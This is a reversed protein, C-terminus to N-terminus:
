GVEQRLFPHLYPSEFEQGECHLHSARGVLSYGWIINGVSTCDKRL